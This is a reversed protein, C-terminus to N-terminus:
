IWVSGLRTLPHWFLLSHLTEAPTNVSVGCTFTLRLSPCVKVRIQWKFTSKGRPKRRTTTKNSLIEGGELRFPCESSSSPRPKTRSGNLRQHPSHTNMRSSRARNGSACTQLAGQDCLPSSPSSSSQWTPYRIGTGGTKSRTCLTAVALEPSSCLWSESYIRLSLPKFRTEISIPLRQWGCGALFRSPHHVVCASPPLFSM